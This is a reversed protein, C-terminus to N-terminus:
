VGSLMRMIQVANAAAGKRLQDGCCWLTLGRDDTVDQRVRGVLVTDQRSSDLPTPFPLPDYEDFLRCGPFGSIASKAESVTIKRVTRLTVSISHSRLVPVRVCTCNVKLSPLHLIRRGENQMKLEEDTYLDDSLEGIFPIVNGAIQRPFVRCQPKNGGALSRMQEELEAIGKQGAGSVAQYTSVIMSEIPSLRALGGVAMLTIITSCNPNAIIGHHSFADSGNVEPIVLPVDPALRFASSNDIYVAGSSVAAPAYKKSLEASVAGLIYDIGTFDADEASGVSNKEGRFPVTTGASNAGSLLILRNVPINYEEIVRLMERGVAGTAGLIAINPDKM